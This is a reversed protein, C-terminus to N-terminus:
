RRVSNRITPTQGIAASLIIGRFAACQRHAPHPGPMPIPPSLSNTSSPRGALKNYSRCATRVKLPSIWATTTGTLMNIRSRSFEPRSISSPARTSDCGRAGARSHTRPSVPTTLLRVFRGTSATTSTIIICRRSPSIMARVSGALKSRALTTASNRSWRSTTFHSQKDATFRSPITSAALTPGSRKVSAILATSTSPLPRTISVQAGKQRITESLNAIVEDVVKELSISALKVDERSFRTYDLLDITLQDLQRGAESIRTLYKHGTADLATGYDELVVEAMAQISRLPARLDHAISYCFDQLEINRENLAETRERVKTELTSAYEELRRHATLLQANLDEIKEVQLKRETQDRIIKVFGLLQGDEDKVLCLGGNVYIQSQDKRVHWRDDFAHGTELAKAMERRPVGSSRDEKTFIFDFDRGLVESEVYGLLTTAGSNWSVVRGDLNLLILGYVQLGQIAAHFSITKLTNEIMALEFDPTPYIRSPGLIDPIRASAIFRGLNTVFRASVLANQM